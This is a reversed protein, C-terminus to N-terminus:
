WGGKPLRGSSSRLWLNIYWQFFSRVPRCRGAVLRLPAYVARFVPKTKPTPAALRAAPGVSLVYLVLAILVWLFWLSGSKDRVSGSDHSEAQTAESTAENM